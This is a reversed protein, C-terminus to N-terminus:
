NKPPNRAEVVLKEFEAPDTYAMDFIFSRICGMCLAGEYEHSLSVALPQGDRGCFLCKTPAM